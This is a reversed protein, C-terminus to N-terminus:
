WQIYYHSPDDIWAVVLFCFLIVMGQILLWQRDTMTDEKGTLVAM